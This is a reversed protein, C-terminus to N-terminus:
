VDRLELVLRSVALVALHAPYFSRWLWLPVAPRRGDVVAALGFAFLITPV